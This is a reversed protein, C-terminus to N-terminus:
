LYQTSYCSITLKFFVICVCVCIGCLGFTSKLNCKHLCVGVYLFFILFLITYKLIQIVFSM